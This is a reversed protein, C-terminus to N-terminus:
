HLTVTLRKSDAIARSWVFKNKNPIHLILVRQEM